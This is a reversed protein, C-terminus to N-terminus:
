TLKLNEKEFLFRSIQENHIRAISPSSELKEDFDSGGSSTVGSVIVDCESLRSSRSTSVSLAKRVKGVIKRSRMLEKAVDSASYADVNSGGSSVLSNIYNALM